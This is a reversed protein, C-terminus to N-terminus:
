NDLKRVGRNVIKVHPAEELWVNSASPSIQALVERTTISLSLLSALHTEGNAASLFMIQKMEMAYIVMRRCIHISIGGAILM